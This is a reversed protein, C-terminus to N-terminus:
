AEAVIKLYEVHQARAEVLWELLLAEDGAKVIEALGVLEKGYAALRDLIAASNTTLIDLMMAPSSGSLRAVDRFGSASVEWASEDKSLASLRMLTASLLYPLHSTTALLVDHVDPSLFLAKSGIGHIIAVAAKEVEPGTRENRCLVFSRGRFLDPSAFSFGASEKGCIPHGGIAQFEPPLANMAQDIERKTSGLDVVMCGGPKIAPLLSLLHLITRVPTALVILDAEVVGQKFDSTAVDAFASAAAIASPDTDVITM